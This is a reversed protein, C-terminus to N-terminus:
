LDASHRHMLFDRPRLGVALAAAFYVVAGGVV